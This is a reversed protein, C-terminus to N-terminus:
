GRMVGLSLEWSLYLWLVFSSSDILNHTQSIVIDWEVTTLSLGRAREVQSLSCYGNGQTSFSIRWVLVSQFRLHLKFSCAQFKMMDLYFSLSFLSNQFIFSFLLADSGFVHSIVVALLPLYQLRHLCPSLARSFSGAAPWAGWPFVAMLSTM